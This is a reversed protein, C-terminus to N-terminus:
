KTFLKHEKTKLVKVDIDIHHKDASQGDEVRASLLFRTGVVVTIRFPCPRSLEMGKSRVDVEVRYAKDHCVNALEYAYSVNNHGRSILHLCGASDDPPSGPPPSAPAKRTWRRFSCRPCGIQVRSTVFYASAAADPHM